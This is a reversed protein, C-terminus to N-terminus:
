LVQFQVRLLFLRYCQARCWRQINVTFFQAGYQKIPWQIFFIRIFRGRSEPDMAYEFIEVVRSLLNLFNRIRIDSVGSVHPRFGFGCLFLQPNMFYGSEHWVHPRPRLLGTLNHNLILSIAVYNKEAGNLQQIAKYCCVLFGGFDTRHFM